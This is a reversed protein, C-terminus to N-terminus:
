TDLRFRVGSSQRESRSVLDWDVAGGKLPDDHFSGRCVEKQETDERDGASVVGAFVSPDFPRWLLLNPDTDVSKEGYEAALQALLNPDLGADEVYVAAVSYRMRPTAGLRLSVPWHM